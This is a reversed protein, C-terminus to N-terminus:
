GTDTCLQQLYTRVQQGVRARRDAPTWLHVDSILKDKSRWCHGSHRTRRIQITKSIPPLHGYLQQNTPHQRWSKNLIVRLMRICNGDLKKGRAKEADMHHMWITTHIRSSRPCFQTKNERIPRVEMHGVAQRYSDMSESMAYHCWKGNILLQKRPLPSSTWLNWLDVMLHTSTAEKILVCSSQKTQTSM